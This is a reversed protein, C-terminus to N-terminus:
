LLRLRQPEHSGFGFLLYRAGRSGLGPRSRSFHSRGCGIDLITTGDRPRGEKQDSNRRCGHYCVVIDFSFSSQFRCHPPYYATLGITPRWIGADHCGSFEFQSGPSIEWLVISEPGTLQKPHAQNRCKPSM